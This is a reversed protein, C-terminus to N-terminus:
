RHRSSQILMFISIDAPHLKVRTVLMALTSIVSVTSTMLIKKLILDNNCKKARCPQLWYMMYHCLILNFLGVVYVVAAAVPRKASSCQMEFAALLNSFVANVPQQEPSGFVGASSSGSCWPGLLDSIQVAPM